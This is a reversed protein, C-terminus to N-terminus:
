PLDFETSPKPRSRAPKYCSPPIARAWAEFHNMLPERWVCYIEDTTWLGISGDPQMPTMDGKRPVQGTRAPLRMAKPDADLSRPEEGRSAGFSRAAINAEREWDIAGTGPPLTIATGAPIAPPAPGPPPEPSRRGARARTVTAARDPAAPQQPTDVPLGIPEVRLVVYVPEGRSSGPAHRLLLWIFGAHM